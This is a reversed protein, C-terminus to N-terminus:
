KIARKIKKLSSIAANQLIISDLSFALFKYGKNLNKIAENPDSSVSHFGAPIKHKKASKLIKKVIEKFEVSDFNGPKNISGSLDYPGILFADIGKVSFIEDINEVAKINEIQIIVISEKELWKLYDNFNRGYGQARYLGVGRSGIPPYKVSKVAELAEKASNVNPVIVGHAGIDMVRKILNPNNEGVRILPTIQKNEMAIIMPLLENLNIATHEIDVCLWDFGAPALIEPILPSSITVWCGLSTKNDNLKSKLTTKVKLKKM